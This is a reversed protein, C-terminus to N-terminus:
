KEIGKQIFIAVASLAFPLSVIITVEHNIFWLVTFLIGFWISDCYVCLIGAAITGPKGYHVNYEGYSPYDRRTVGVKARIWDLSNFLGEQDTDALLNSLRWVALAILIFYWITM